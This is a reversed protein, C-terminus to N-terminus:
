FRGNECCRPALDVNWSIEGWMRLANAAWKM